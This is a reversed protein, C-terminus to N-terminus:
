HLIREGTTQVAELEKSIAHLLEDIGEGTLCSIRIARRKLARDLNELNEKSSLDIKNAATLLRTDKGLLEGVSRYISMQMEIPIGCAESPDFLFLALDGLHRLAAIARIEIPNRKSLPRDLLGPTDIIQIVSRDISRILGGLDRHGVNVHKTTFPYAAIKPKGSSIRKVLTSKGTNSPGCVLLCAKSFDIDPLKRLVARARALEDLQPDIQKLVSALRGFYSRRVSAYGRRISRMKRLHSRQLSETRGLAWKVAGMDKKFRDLGVVTELVELYFPHVREIRPTERLLARLRRSISGQAAKVRAEEALRPRQGKASVHISAAKQRAKRFAQELLEEARPVHPLREFPQTGLCGAFM